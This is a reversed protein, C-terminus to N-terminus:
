HNTGEEATVSTSSCDNFTITLLDSVLAGHRRWPGPWTENPCEPGHVARSLLRVLDHRFRARSFRESAWSRAAVGMRNRLEDDGFLTQLKSALEEHEGPTYLFGNLGDQILEVTGGSRTGVVPKGLKMAEVTVRGFAECRSCVVAVDCSSVIPLPNAVHGTFQVQNEIGLQRSLDKLQDSYSGTSGILVLAANIGGRLLLEIARIADQQGKNESIRGVICVKHKAKAARTARTRAQGEQAGDFNMHVSYYILCLKRRDIYNSYKSAVAASNVLVMISTRGMFWTSCRIGMDFRIGHDEEGFEHIWWVHPVRLLTAALAGVPLVITNTLVM